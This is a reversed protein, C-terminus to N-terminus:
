EAQYERDHYIFALDICFAGLKYPLPHRGDFSLEFYFQQSSGGFRYMKSPKPYFEGSRGLYNFSTGNVFSAHVFLFERNWVQNFEYSLTGDARSTSQTYDTQAKNLNFFQQADDNLASLYFHYTYKGETAVQKEAYLQATSDEYRYYSKLILKDEPNTKSAPAQNALRCIKELITAASINPSVAMKIMIFRRESSGSDTPTRVMNVTLELNLSEAHLDIKRLAIAKNPTLHHYWFDPYDFYYKGDVFRANQPNYAKNEFCSESFFVEELMYRNGYKPPKGSVIASIVNKKM